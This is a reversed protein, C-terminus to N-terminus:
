CHLHVLKHTYEKGGIQVKNHVRQGGLHVQKHVRQQPDDLPHTEGVEARDEGGYTPYNM